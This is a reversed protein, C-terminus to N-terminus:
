YSAGWFCGFWGVIFPLNLVHVSVSFCFITLFDLTESPDKSLFTQLLVSFSFNCSYFFHQSFTFSVVISVGVRNTPYPALLLMLHATMSFHTTYINPLMRKGCAKFGRSCPGLANLEVCEVNLVAINERVSFIM